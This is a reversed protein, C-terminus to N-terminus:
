LALRAINQLKALLFYRQGFYKKVKKGFFNSFDRPPYIQAMLSQFPKILLIVM